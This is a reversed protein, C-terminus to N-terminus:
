ILGELKDIFDKVAEAGDGVAEPPLVGEYFNQHLYNAQLFLRSLEPDKLETRLKAVFRWLDGHTRLEVGRKAAVVKVAEAAAGWLKESAQVYDRKALFAEAEKLYKRMLNSYHEAKEGM